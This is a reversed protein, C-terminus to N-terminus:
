GVMAGDQLLDGILLWAKGEAGTVALVSGKAPSGKLWRVLKANHASATDRNVHCEDALSALNHKVGFFREIIGRRLRYHSLCGSLEGLAVETVFGIANTWELNPKEGSCCAHRCECPISHPATRAILINASLPDIRALEGRIMGAQAAGDLGGLGKGARGPAAAMRAMMSKDYQQGSFNFAFVLASHASNFLADNEAILIREQLQEQIRIGDKRVRRMM